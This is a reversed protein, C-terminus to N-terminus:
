YSDRYFCIVWLAMYLSISYSILLAAERFARLIQPSSTIAYCIIVIIRCFYYIRFLNSTFKVPPDTTIFLGASIWFPSLSKLETMYARRVISSNAFFGKNIWSLAILPSLALLNLTLLASYFMYARALEKDLIIQYKM